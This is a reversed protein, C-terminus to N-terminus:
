FGIPDNFPAPESPDAAQEKKRPFLWVRGNRPYQKGDSGTVTKPPSTEGGEGKPPNRFAIEAPEVGLQVVIEAVFKGTRAIVARAASGDVTSAASRATYHVLIRRSARGSSQPPREAGANRRRASLAVLCFTQGAQGQSYVPEASKACTCRM